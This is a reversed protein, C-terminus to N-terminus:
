IVTRSKSIHVSWAILYFLTQVNLLCRKYISKNPPVQEFQSINENKSIIALEASKSEMKHIDNRIQIRTMYIVMFQVVIQKMWLSKFLILWELISFRISDVSRVRLQLRCQAYCKNKWMIIDQVIKIRERTVKVGFFFTWKVQNKERLKVAKLYSSKLAWCQLQYFLIKWM